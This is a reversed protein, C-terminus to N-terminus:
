DDFYFLSLILLEESSFGVTLWKELRQFLVLWPCPTSKTFIQLDLVGGDGTSISGLPVLLATTFSKEKLM